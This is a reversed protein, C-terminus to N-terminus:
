HAMTSAGGPTEVGYAERWEDKSMPKDSITYNRNVNESFTVDKQGLYQKGLWIAMTANSEAMAFQKRRLSALGEMRGSDHAEKADPHDAFFSQLTRESCRLVSASEAV